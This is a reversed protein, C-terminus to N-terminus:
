SEGARPVEPRKQGLALHSGDFSGFDPARFVLRADQGFTIAESTPMGPPTWTVPEEALYCSLHNAKALMEIQVFPGGSQIPLHQFIERRALRFPCEPDIVRVGFIWRAVWRQGWGEAGLWCTRPELPVGIVLRGLLGLLTDLGVRWPPAQGGARYGVVLDVKDIVKLMRELESPQYQKDAPCFALLPHQASWIAENLADRFGHSRDYPFTRAPKAAEPLEDTSDPSVEPRTEQILLIEFARGLTDLYRRWARLSDPADTSLAQAFLLVSIPSTAIAPRQSPGSM